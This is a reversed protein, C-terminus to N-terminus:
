LVVSFVHRERMGKLLTLSLDIEWFDQKLNDM